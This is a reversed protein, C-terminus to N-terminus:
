SAAHLDLSFSKYLFSFLKLFFIEIKVLSKVFETSSVNMQLRCIAPLVLCHNSGEVVAFIVNLNHVSFAIKEGWNKDVLILYMTQTM